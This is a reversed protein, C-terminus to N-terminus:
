VDTLTNNIRPVSMTINVMKKSDNSRGMGTRWGKTSNNLNDLDITNVVGKKFHGVM